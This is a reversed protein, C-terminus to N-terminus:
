QASAMCWAVLPTLSAALLESRVLPYPTHKTQTQLNSSGFPCSSARRSRDEEEQGPINRVKSDWVCKQLRQAIRQM